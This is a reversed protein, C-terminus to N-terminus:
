RILNLGRAAVVAAAADTAGLARMAEALAAAVTADDGVLEVVQMRSYGRALLQLVLLERGTLRDAAVATAALEGEATGSSTALCAEM